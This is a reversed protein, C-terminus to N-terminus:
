LKCKSLSDYKEYHNQLLLGTGNRRRSQIDMMVIDAHNLLLFTGLAKEGFRGISLLRQKNKELAKKQLLFLQFVAIMKVILIKPSVNM